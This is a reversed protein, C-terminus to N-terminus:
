RGLRTGLRAHSFTLDLGQRSVAVGDFAAAFAVWAPSTVDADHTGPLVNENGVGNAQAPITFTYPNSDADTATVVWKDGLNVPDTPRIQSASQSVLVGRSAFTGVSLGVVASQLASVAAIQAAINGANWEVGHTKFFSVRGM